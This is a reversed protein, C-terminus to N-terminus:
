VFYNNGTGGLIKSIAFVAISLNVSLSADGGSSGTGERYRADHDAQEREKGEEGQQTATEM